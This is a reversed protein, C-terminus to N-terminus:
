GGPLELDIYKSDYYVHNRRSAFTELIRKDNCTEDITPIEIITGINIRPNSNIDKRIREINRKDQSTLIIDIKKKGHFREIKEVSKYIDDLTSGTLGINTNRIIGPNTTANRVAGTIRNIEIDFCKLSNKDLLCDQTMGKRRCPCKTDFFRKPYIPEIMDSYKCILRGAGWGMVAITPIKLLAGICLWSTDVTIICRMQDAIAALLRRDGVFPLMRTNPIRLNEHHLILINYGLRYLAACLDKYNRITDYEGAGSPAVGIIPRKRSTFKPPFIASIIKRASTRENNKVIYTHQLAIDTGSEVNENWINPRDTRIRGTNILEEEEKIDTHKFVNIVKSTKFKKGIANMVPLDDELERNNLNLTNDHTFINSFGSDEFISSYESSVVLYKKRKSDNGVSKWVYNLFFYDGMGGYKKCVYVESNEELTDVSQITSKNKRENEKRDIIKPPPPLKKGSNIERLGFPILLEVENYSNFWRLVVGTNVASKPLFFIKDLNLHFCIFLNQSSGPGFSPKGDPHYIMVKRCNESAPIASWTAQGFYCDAHKILTACERVTIKGCMYNVGPVDKRFSDDKGGIVFVNNGKEVLRRELDTWFDQNMGWESPNKYSVGSHRHLIVNQKDNSLIKPREGYKLKINSRELQESPRGNIFTYIHDTKSMDFVTPILESVIVNSWFKKGPKANIFMYESMGPDLDNFLDRVIEGLGQFAGLQYHVIKKKHNPYKEKIADYYTTFSLYDGIGGRVMIGIYRDGEM